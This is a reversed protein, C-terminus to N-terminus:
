SASRGPPCDPAARRCSSSGRRPQQRSRAPRIPTPCPCPRHDRARAIPLSPTGGCVTGSRSLLPRPDAQARRRYALYAPYREILWAEERRAKAGFFGAAGIAVALRARRGTALPGGFLILLIGDYMPHRVSGYVGGEVLVGGDRPGPLSTLDRGPRPSGASLLAVGALAIPVGIARCAIQAARPWPGEWRPAAVALVILLGQAAVRAERREALGAVM